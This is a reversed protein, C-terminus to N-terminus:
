PGPGLNGLLQLLVPAWITCHGFWLRVWCCGRPLTQARSTSRGTSPTVHGDAHGLSGPSVAPPPALAVAWM